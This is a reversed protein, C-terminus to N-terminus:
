SNLKKQYSIYNAVQASLYYYHSLGFSVVLRICCQAKDALNFLVAVHLNCLFNLLHNNLSSPLGFKVGALGIVM